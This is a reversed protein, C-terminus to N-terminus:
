ALGRSLITEPTGRRLIFESRTGIKKVYTLADPGSWVAHPLDRRIYLGRLGL